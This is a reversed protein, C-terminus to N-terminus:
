PHAFMTARPDEALTGMMKKTAEVVLADFDAQTRRGGSQLKSISERLVAAAGPGLGLSDVFAGMDDKANLFKETLTEASPLEALPDMHAPAPTFAPAQALAANQGTGLDVDTDKELTALLRDITRQKDEPPFAAAAVAASAAAEAAEKREADSSALTRYVAKQRAQKFVQRREHARRLLEERSIAPPGGLPRPPELTPTQM